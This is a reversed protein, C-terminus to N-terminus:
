VYSVVAHPVYLEELFKRESTDLKVVVLRIGDPATCIAKVRTIRLASMAAPSYLVM